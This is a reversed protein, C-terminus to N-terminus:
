RRFVNYGDLRIGLVRNEPVYQWRGLFQEGEGIAVGDLKHLLASLDKKTM